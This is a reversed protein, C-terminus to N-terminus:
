GIHTSCWMFVTRRFLVIALKAIGTSMRTALRTQRAVVEFAAVLV